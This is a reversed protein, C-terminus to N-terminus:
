WSTGLQLGAEVQDLDEGDVPIHALGAFPGVLWPGWTLGLAIRGRAVVVEPGGRGFWLSPQWALTGLLGARGRRTRLVLALQGYVLTTRLTENRADGLCVTEGTDVPICMRPENRRYIGFDVGGGIALAFRTRSNEEGTTLAPMLVETTFGHSRWYGTSSLSSDFQARYGVRVIPIWPSRAHEPEPPAVPREDDVSSAVSVTQAAASSAALLVLLM